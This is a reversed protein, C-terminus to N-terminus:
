VLGLYNLIGVVLIIQLVLIFPMGWVFYWHKTKHRFFQMGAISGISGGILAVVFLFKESLRYKKKQARSKDSGMSWFGILNMIVLYILVAKVM